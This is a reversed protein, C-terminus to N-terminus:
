ESFQSVIEHDTDPIWETMGEWEADVTQALLITIKNADQQESYSKTKSITIGFASFFGDIEQRSYSFAEAIDSQVIIREVVEKEEGDVNKTVTKEQFFESKIVITTKGNLDDTKYSQMTRVVDSLGKTKTTATKATSRIAIM